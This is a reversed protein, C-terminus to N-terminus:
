TVSYRKVVAENVSVGLGPAKRVALMGSEPVWPDSVLEHQMPSEHPKFDMSVGARSTALLHLSGATNLAGSWTHASFQLNEAEILQIVKYCGSLGLCRGPDMQIVDVGGDQILRRYGEVTWEQEGTGVPTNVSARLERHAKHDQPPLPEEIWRLRYPELEGVRRIAEAVTWNVRGGLVDIILERDPGIIERVGKVLNLDRARNHGFVADPSAGWGGKVYHYGKEVMFRFENFTWDLDTMNFHISAMAPVCDRLQGGLLCCVPQGLLKGKLDWLAIDVASLAFAAIGQPGYWWVRELMRHWLPGVDLPSQGLLLPAYGREIITKVSLASEVFQSICEGWGVTGDESEIRALTIYRTNNHDHPEPYGLPFADIRRIRTM